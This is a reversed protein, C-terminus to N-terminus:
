GALTLGMSAPLHAHAVATTDPRAGYIARHIAVDSSPRLGRDSAVDGGRPPLLPVVLLEEPTVEDKRRGSPTILLESSGFRVSLNGETAAVLGAARLRRGAAVLAARAEGGAADGL